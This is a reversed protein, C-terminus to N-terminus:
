QWGRVQKSCRHKSCRHKSCWWWQQQRGGITKLGKAKSGCTTLAGFAAADVNASRGTGNTNNHSGVPFDLRQDFRYIYNQHSFFTPVTLNTCPGCRESQPPRPLPPPESTSSKALQRPPERPVWMCSRIHTCARDINRVPERFKTQVLTYLILTSRPRRHLRADVM